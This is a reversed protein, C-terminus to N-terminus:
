DVYLNYAQISQANQTNVRHGSRRRSRSLRCRNRKDLIDKKRTNGEEEFALAVVGSRCWRGNGNKNKQTHKPRTHGRTPGGSPRAVSRVCTPRFHTGLEAPLARPNLGHPRPNLGRPICFFNKKFVKSIQKHKPRVAAAVSAALGYPRSNQVTKAPAKGTKLGMFNKHHMLPGRTDTLRECVRLRRRGLQARARPAYSM